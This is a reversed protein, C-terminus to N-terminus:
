LAAAAEVLKAPILAVWQERERLLGRALSTNDDPVSTDIAFEKGTRDKEIADLLLRMDDTSLPHDLSEGILQIMACISMRVKGQQLTRGPQGAIAKLMFQRLETNGGTMIEHWRRGICPITVASKDVRLLQDMAQDDGNKAAHLLGLPKRNYHLWCPMWVCWAFTTIALIAYAANREIPKDSHVLDLVMQGLIEGFNPTEGFQNHIEDVLQDESLESMTQQVEGLNTSGTLLGSILRLILKNRWYYKRWLKAPVPVELEFRLGECGDM